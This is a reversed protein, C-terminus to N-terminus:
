IPKNCFKYDTNSNIKRKEFHGQKVIRDFIQRLTDTDKINTIYVMLAKINKYGVWQWNAINRYKFYLILFEVIEDLTEM